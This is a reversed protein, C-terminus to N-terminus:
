LQLISLTHKHLREMRRSPGKIARLSWPAMQDENPLGQNGEIWPHMPSGPACRVIFLVRNREMGAVGVTSIAMPDKPQGACRVILHPRNVMPRCLHCDNIARRYSACALAM